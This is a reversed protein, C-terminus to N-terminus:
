HYRQTLVLKIFLETRYWFGKKVFRYRLLNYFTVISNEKKELYSIFNQIIIKDNIEVFNHQLLYHLVHNRNIDMYPLPFNLSFSRKFKKFFNIKLYATSNSLNQKHIRYRVLPQNLTIRKGYLENILAIWYDHVALLQPFPLIINKLKQNMIITNGMVGCPGLITGLDKEKNLQYNRFKFYSSHLLGNYEDIMSLDSHVMLPLGPHKQEMIKMHKINLHLKNPEWIDDQDSLVIYRGKCLSIAREFNQVSGIRKKNQALTINQYKNQYSEIIEITKDTSCDDCVLLEFDNYSQMFISDLQQKLFREGNYTAMAISITPKKKCMYFSKM